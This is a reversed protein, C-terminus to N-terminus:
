LNYFKLYVNEDRNNKKLNMETINSVATPFVCVEFLAWLVSKDATNPLTLFVQFMTNSHQM